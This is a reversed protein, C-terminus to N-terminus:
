YGDRWRRRRWRAPHWIDAPVRVNIGYCQVPIVGVQLREDELAVPVDQKTAAVNHRTVRPPDAVVPAAQRAVDVRRQVYRRQSGDGAVGHEEFAVLVVNKAFVLLHVVVPVDSFQTQRSVDVRSKEEAGIASQICRFTIRWHAFDHLNEAQTKFNVCSSM